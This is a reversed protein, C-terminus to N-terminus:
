SSSHLEAVGAEEEGGGVEHVEVLALVEGREVPRRQVVLRKPRLLGRGVVLGLEEDVLAAASVIVAMRM